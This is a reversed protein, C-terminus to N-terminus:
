PTDITTSAEHPHGSLDHITVRVETTGVPNVEVGDPRYRIHYLGDAEPDSITFGRRHPRDIYVSSISGDSRRIHLVGSVPDLDIPPRAIALEVFAAYIVFKITDQAVEKDPLHYPSDARLWEDGVKMYDRSGRQRYAVARVEVIAGPPAHDLTYTFPFHGYLDPETEIRDGHVFVAAYDAVGSPNVFRRFGDQLVFDFEVSEGVHAMQKPADSWDYGPPKPGTNTALSGSVCGGMVVATCSLLGVAGARRGPKIRRIM